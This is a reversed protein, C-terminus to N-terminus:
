IFRVGDGHIGRLQGRFMFISCSFRERHHSFIVATTPTWVMVRKGDFRVLKEILNESFLRRKRRFRRACYMLEANQSHM